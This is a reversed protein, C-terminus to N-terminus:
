YVKYQLYFHSHYKRSELCHCVSRPDNKATSWIALKIV